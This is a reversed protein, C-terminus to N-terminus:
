NNSVVSAARKVGYPHLPNKTPLRGADFGSEIDDVSPACHAQDMRLLRM